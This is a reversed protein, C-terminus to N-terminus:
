EGHISFTWSLVGSAAVLRARVAADVKVADAGVAGVFAEDIAAGLGDYKGVDKRDIALQLSGAHFAVFKDTDSIIPEPRDGDRLLVFAM